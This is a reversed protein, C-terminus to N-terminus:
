PYEFAGIDCALGQPRAVGRQDTAACTATNGQDV